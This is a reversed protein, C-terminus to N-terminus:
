LMPSLLFDRARMRMGGKGSQFLSSGEDVTCMNRNLANSDFSEIVLNVLGGSLNLQPLAFAASGPFGNPAASQIVNKGSDSVFDIRQNGFNINDFLTENSPVLLITKDITITGANAGTGETNAQIFGTNLVLYDPGSININGGDGIEGSVSTSIKGNHLYIIDGGNIIINGGTSNKSDTKIVSSDLYLLEQFTIEIAGADNVGTASTSVKSENDIEITKAHIDVQGPTRSVDGSQTVSKTSSSTDSEITGKNTIILKEAPISDEITPLEISGIGAVLVIGASGSIDGQASSSIGTLQSNGQGDIEIHRANIVVGSSNGKGTTIAEIAGGNVLSLFDAIVIVKGDKNGGTTQTNTSSKIKGGNTIILKELLISNDVRSGRVIVNGAQGSSGPEASSTIGTFLTNNGQGDIEILRAAITFIGADGQGSTTSEITGGNALSLTDATIFAVGAGNVGTTSTSVKGENDIEITKARINVQGPTRSEDGSQTVSKTSSSTDSEITGKNTIILKEVPIPHEFEGGIGAVDIVGAKGSNDVQASSSIKSNNGQGDITIERAFISIVGADGQGFTTSEILGGNTLRLTDATIEVFGANNVGATSTSIKGGNDIDIAKAHISVQGLEPEDKNQTVKPSSSTVSEIKGGNTIIFKEVPISRNLSTKTDIGTVFIKGANGGGAQSSTSIGTLQPNNGQGDITIERAFIDVSGADGQGSTTSEITGGNAFNLADATVKVFGANNVGSTSSEIRGGNTIKLTKVPIPLEDTSGIGVVSVIGASGSIDGQASSTIGTLQPNNGQGDIEILRAKIIVGIADGQGSTSSEITGGNTLSLTNDVKVRVLGAKNVGFTSTSVKGGNDIDITKAHINVKGDSKAEKETKSSTVSEITGGNTIKLKEVPILDDSPKINGIGAVNVLGANGSKDSEASSSIKSNNGQGDITIERAFISIVGADGHGSTASKILGGNTLRLTDARILVGGADGQGSTTSKITGGNALSLTDATVDVLGANGQDFTVSDITGGNALNLSNATIKVVGADGSSLVDNRIISDDILLNSRVFVDIGHLGTMPKDGTNDVRLDSKSTTFNGSQIGLYGSGNGSANISANQILLDGATTATPQGAAFTGLKIQAAENGAAIIQLNIGDQLPEANNTVTANDIRIQNAIFGVNTGPEFSLTTEATELSGINIKGSENGLFGFSEPDAASLTSVDVESSLYQSGDDGLNLASATSAYFAGPVDVSAGAGFTIGASNILFFAPASGANTMKLAGEISSESGGTVRSIVNALDPTNLNFWASDTAGINFNSFSYFLNNGAPKGHKESLPYVQNSGPADVNFATIGQLTKDTQIQTNVAGADGPPLVTFSICVALFTISNCYPKKKM